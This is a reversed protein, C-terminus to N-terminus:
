LEYFADHGGEFICSDVWGHWSRGKFHPRSGLPERYILSVTSFPQSQCSAMLFLLFYKWVSPFAVIFLYKSTPVIIRIFRKFGTSQLVLNIVTAKILNALMCLNAWLLAGLSFDPPRFSSPLRYPILNRDIVTSNKKIATKEPHVKVPLSWTGVELM